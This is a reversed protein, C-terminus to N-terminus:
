VCYSHRTIVVIHHSHDSPLSERIHLLYDPNLSSHSTEPASPLAPHTPRRRCPSRRTPTSSTKKKKELLLRCVLYALSQLESTHEESRSSGCRRGPSAIRGHSRGARPTSGPQSAITARRATSDM